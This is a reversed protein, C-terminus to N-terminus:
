PLARLLFVLGWLAALFLLAPLFLRALAGAVFRPKVQLVHARQERLRALDAEDFSPAQGAQIQLAIGALEERYAEGEDFDDFRGTSLYVSRVLAEPDQTPDLGCAGCIM